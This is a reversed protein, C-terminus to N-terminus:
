NMNIGLNKLHYYLGVNRTLSSDSAFHRYVHTSRAAFIGLGGTVNTYIQKSQDADTRNEMSIMYANLDENCVLLYIDVSKLYKKAAPNSELAGKLDTLFTERSYNTSQTTASLSQTRVRGCMLDISLTDNNVGYYFRVRPQYVRANKYTYWEIHCSSNDSGSRDYFGFVQRNHNDGIDRIIPSRDPPIVPLTAAEAMLERGADTNKYLKLQYSEANTLRGTTVAYFMPQNSAAFQGDDIDKEIYTFPITDIINNTHYVDLRVSISGQPYNTSDSIRAPTYIDGDELYCRQVRVWSTDDDQDLVCYIVPVDKWQANPSFEVDCSALCLLVCPLALSRIIHLFKM